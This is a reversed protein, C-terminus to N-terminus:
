ITIQLNANGPRFQRVFVLVKKDTNYIIISVSEHQTVLDWVKKKGDQPFIFIYICWIIGSM